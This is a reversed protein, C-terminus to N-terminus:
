EQLSINRMYYIKFVSQSHCRSNGLSQGSNDCFDVSSFKVGINKVVFHIFQMLNGDIYKRAKKAQQSTSKLQKIKSFQLLKYGKAHKYEAIQTRSTPNSPVLTM